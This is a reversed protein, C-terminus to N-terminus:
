FLSVLRVNIIVGGHQLTKKEMKYEHINVGVVPQRKLKHTVWDKIYLLKNDKCM